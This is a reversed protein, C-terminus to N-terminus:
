TPTVSYLFTYKKVWFVLHISYLCLQQFIYSLLSHLCESERKCHQHLLMPSLGPWFVKKEEVGERGIIDIHTKARSQFETAFSLIWKIYKSLLLRPNIGSRLSITSQMVAHAAARQPLKDRHSNLFARLGWSKGLLVLSNCVCPLICFVLQIYDVHFYEDRWLFNAPM